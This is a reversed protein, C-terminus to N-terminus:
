VGALRDDDIRLQAVEADFPRIVVDRDHLLAIDERIEFRLGLEVDHRQGVARGRLVGSRNGELPDHPRHERDILNLALLNM